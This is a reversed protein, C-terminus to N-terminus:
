KLNSKELINKIKNLYQEVLPLLLNENKILFSMMKKENIEVNILNGSYYFENHFKSVFGDWDFEFTNEHYFSLYRNVDDPNVNVTLSKKIIDPLNNVDDIYKVSPLISYYTKSFVISPKGYIASEFGATGITAATLETKEYMKESPFDPHFLKVNPIKLIEKYESISHWNREIMGPHEKVFISFDVPAAKALYRILEIQYNFFPSNILMNKEMEVSLPFYIFKKNEPIKKLLNEDMFKKRFYTKIMIEFIYLISKIKTRGFYTYHTQTIDNNYFLYKFFSSFKKLINGGLNKEYQTRQLLLNKSKIYSKMEEFTRKKPSHQNITEINDPILYNKSLLVRYGTNPFSTMILNLNNKQCMLLFIELHHLRSDMSIVFDYHMQNLVEDFLKCSKESISLIEDDSFNHFNHFRYITRENIALKWFDIHYKEECKKLYQLDVVNKDLDKLYDHFFWVKKFKVLKQNIFFNKPNNGIDIVAYLDCDLKKQLFYAIMFYTLDNGLWFLIKLTM